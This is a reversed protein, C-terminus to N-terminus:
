QEDSTEDEYYELLDIPQCQLAKCISAMTDFRMGTARGVKINSWSQNNIGTRESLEKLRMKRKALMVDLHVNITM